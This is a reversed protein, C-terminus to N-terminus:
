FLSASIVENGIIGISIYRDLVARIDTGADAKDTRIGNVSLCLSGDANEIKDYCDSFLAHSAPVRDYLIGRYEAMRCGPFNVNWMKDPPLKRRSLEAAVSELQADVVEFIGNAESSFAIAAIGNSLAETAAGITGSYLIDRGANYGENIGSFVIDPKEPMLAALAVKVCDAPTGSVSYATVGGVPFDVPKVVLEGRVTIRHSMASCQASPAVVRVEGLTKAARALRVIGEAMIGDDNVVLIRM